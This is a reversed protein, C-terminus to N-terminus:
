KDHTKSLEELVETVQKQLREVDEKSKELESQLQAIAFLQNSVIERIVQEPTRAM